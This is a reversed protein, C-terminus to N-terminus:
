QNAKKWERFEARLAKKRESKSMPALARYQDETLPMLSDDLGQAALTQRLASAEAETVYHIGGTTDMMELM